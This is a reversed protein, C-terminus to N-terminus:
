LSAPDFWVVENSMIEKNSEGRLGHTYILLPVGVPNPGTPRELNPLWNPASPDASSIGFVEFTRGQDKSILLAIEASPHGWQASDDEVSKDVTTVAIYMTRGRGFVISGPTKVARDPWQQQISPLM